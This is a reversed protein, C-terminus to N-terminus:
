ALECCRGMLARLGKAALGHMGHFARLSRHVWSPRDPDLAPTTDAVLAANCDSSVLKWCYPSPEIPEEIPGGGGGGGHAPSKSENILTGIAVAHLLITDYPVSQAQMRGGNSHQGRVM